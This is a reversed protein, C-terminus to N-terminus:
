DRDRIVRKSPAEESDSLRDRIVRKKIKTKDEETQTGALWREVNAKEDRYYEEFQQWKIEVKYRTAFDKLWPCAKGQEGLEKVRPFFYDRMATAEPMHDGANIIGFFYQSVQIVGNLPGNFVCQEDMGSLWAYALVKGLLPGRWPLEDTGSMLSLAVHMEFPELLMAGPGNRKGKTEKLRVAIRAFHAKDADTLLPSSVTVFSETRARPLTPM